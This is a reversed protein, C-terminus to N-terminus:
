FVTKELTLCHSVLEDELEDGLCPVGGHCKTDENAYVNQNNEHRSLTVKPVDYAKCAANLGM